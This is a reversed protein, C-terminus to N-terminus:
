ITNIFRFFVCHNRVNSDVHQRNGQDDRKIWEVNIDRSVTKCLVEVNEGERFARRPQDIRVLAQEPAGLIVWLIKSFIFLKMQFVICVLELLDLNGMIGAIWCIGCFFCNLPNLFSILCVSCLCINTLCQVSRFLDFGIIVCLCIPNGFWFPYVCQSLYLIFM